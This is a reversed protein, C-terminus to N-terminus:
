RRVHVYTHVSIGVGVGAITTYKIGELMPSEIAAVTSKRPGPLSAKGFTALVILIEGYAWSISVLWSCENGQWSRGVWGGM